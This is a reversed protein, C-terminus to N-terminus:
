FLWRFVFYKKVLEEEFILKMTQTSHISIDWKDSIHRKKEWSKDREKGLSEKGPM